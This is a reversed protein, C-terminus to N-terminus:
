TFALQENRALRQLDSETQWITVPEGTTGSTQCIDVIQEESVALFRQNCEALDAKSTLPLAVLDELSRFEVASFGCQQFLERYYPSAQQLYRLHHQLLALPQAAM